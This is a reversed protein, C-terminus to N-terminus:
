IILFKKYNAKSNNKEIRHHLFSIFSVPGYVAFLDLRQNINPHELNQPFLFKM